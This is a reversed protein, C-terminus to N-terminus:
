TENKKIVALYDSYNVFKSNLGFLRKFPLYFLNFSSGFVLKVYRSFKGGFFDGIWVDNLIDYSYKENDYILNKLKWSNAIYFMNEIKLGYRGILQTLTMPCIWCTHEPNVMINKKFVSYFFQDSYFPNCTTVILVGDERLLSIINHFFGDFNTLHEILDGAVIVDFQEDFKLPATVDGYRIDYGMENLRKICDQLFDVGIAKKAVSVIKKHLWDPDKIAFDSNHRICGLDLVVKGKCMKQIFEIRHVPKNSLLLKSIGYKNM